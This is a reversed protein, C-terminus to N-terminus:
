DIKMSVLEMMYEQVTLGDEQFERQYMFGTKELVRVSANNEPLVFAHITDLNLRHKALKFCAMCSETAIGKGWFEKKFRFGLDTKDLEPMYKFGTFGIFEGTAKWDVALRGYGYKSYDGLVDERIRREMERRDVVGGDGTYRSVEPDLNMVYSADIDEEKFPRIILRETEISLDRLNFEKNSM